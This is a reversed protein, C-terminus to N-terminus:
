NQRTVKILQDVATLQDSLAQLCGHRGQLGNLTTQLDAVLYDLTLRAQPPPPPSPPPSLNHPVLAGVSRSRASERLVEESRRQDSVSTPVVVESCPRRGANLRRAAAEVTVAVGCRPLGPGPVQGQRCPSSVGVCGSTTTTTTSSSPYGFSSAPFVPMSLRNAAQV